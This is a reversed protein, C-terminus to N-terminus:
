SNSCNPLYAEHHFLLFIEIVINKAGSNDLLSPVLCSVVKFSLLKVALNNILLM